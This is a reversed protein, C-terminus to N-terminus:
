CDLYTFIRVSLLEPCPKEGGGSLGAIAAARIGIEALKVLADGSRDISTATTTQLLQNAGVGISVDDDTASEPNYELFFIRSTDPIQLPAGITVEYQGIKQSM